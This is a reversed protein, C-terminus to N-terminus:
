CEFLIHKERVVDFSRIRGGKGREKEREEESRKRSEREGPNSWAATAVAANQGSRPLIQARKV